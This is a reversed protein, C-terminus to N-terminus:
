DVLARIISGAPVPPWARYLSYRRAPGAAAIANARERADAVHRAHLRLASLKVHAADGVDIWTNPQGDPAEAIGMQRAREPPVADYFLGGLLLGDARAERFATTAAQGIAIHDPHRTIGAPGFTIVADPRFQRLRDLIISVLEARPVRDLSGDAYKLIEVEAYGILDAVAHLDAERAQALEIPPLPPEQSPRGREGRTFWLGRLQSGQRAHNALLASPGFSEDDPHAYVTL